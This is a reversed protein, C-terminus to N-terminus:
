QPSSIALSPIPRTSINNNNNFDCLLIDTLGKYKQLFTHCLYVGGGAGNRKQCEVIICENGIGQDCTTVWQPTHCEVYLHSTCLLLPWQIDMLPPLSANSPLALLVSILWTPRFKKEGKRKGGKWSFGLGMSRMLSPNSYYYSFNQCLNHLYNHM